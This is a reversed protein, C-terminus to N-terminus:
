IVDIQNLDSWKQEIDCWKQKLFGKQKWKESLGAVQDIFYKALAWSLKSQPIFYQRVEQIRRHWFAQLLTTISSRTTCTQYSIMSKTIEFRVEFLM